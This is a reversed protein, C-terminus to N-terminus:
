IGIGTELVLPTVDDQIGIVTELVLADYPFAVCLPAVEDRVRLVPLPAVKDPFGLVHLVLIVRSPLM